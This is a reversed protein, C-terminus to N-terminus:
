SIDNQEEPRRTSDERALAAPIVQSFILRPLAMIVDQPLVLVRGRRCVGRYEEWATSLRDLLGPDAPSKSVLDEAVMVETAATIFMSMWGDTVRDVEEIIRQFDKVSGM